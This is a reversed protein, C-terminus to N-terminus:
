NSTVHLQGNETRFSGEHNKNTISSQFDIENFKPQSLSYCCTGKILDYSVYSLNKVM